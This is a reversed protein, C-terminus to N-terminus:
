RDGNKRDRSDRGGRRDGGRDGGGRRDRSDSRGNGGRPRMEEASKRRDKAFVVALERGDMEYRDLHDMADAADRHDYFEV